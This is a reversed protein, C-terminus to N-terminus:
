TDQAPLRKKVGAGALLVVTTKRTMPLKATIKRLPM